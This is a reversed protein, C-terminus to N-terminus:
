NKEKNQLINKIRSINNNNCECLWYIMLVRPECWEIHVHAHTYNHQNIQLKKRKQFKNQHNRNYCHCPWHFAYNTGIINQNPQSSAKWAADYLTDVVLKYSWFFFALIFSHIFGYNFANFHMINRTHANAQAHIYFLSSIANCRYVSILSRLFLHNPWAMSLAHTRTPQALHIIYACM